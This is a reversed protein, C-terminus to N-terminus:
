IGSHEENIIALIDRLWEFLYMCSDCGSNLLEVITSFDHEM